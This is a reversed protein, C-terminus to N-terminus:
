DDDVDWKRADCVTENTGYVIGFIEWRQGYRDTLLDYAKVSPFGHIRIVATAGTQTISGREGETATQQEISAWLRPGFVYQDEGDGNTPNTVKNLVMQQVRDRYEGVAM